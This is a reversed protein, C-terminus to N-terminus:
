ESPFPVGPIVTICNANLCNRMDITPGINYLYPNNQLFSVIMQLLLPNKPKTSIIFAQFIGPSYGSLCSYWSVDPNENIIDDISVHPVLDVDAYVGGSHYLKCIRWLDAKYM